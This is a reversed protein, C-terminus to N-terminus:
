TSWCPSRQDSIHIWFRTDDRVNGYAVFSWGGRQYTSTLGYATWEAGSYRTNNMGPILRGDHFAATVWGDGFSERCFMDVENVNRFQLGQVPVTTAVSGMLWGGNLSPNSTFIPYAPRPSSDIKKCLVPLKRSCDTDGTYPNCENPPKGCGFGDVGFDSFHYSKRFTLGM